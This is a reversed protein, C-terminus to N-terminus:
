RVIEDKFHDKIMMDLIVLRSWRKSTVVVLAYGELVLLMERSFRVKKLIEAATARHQM